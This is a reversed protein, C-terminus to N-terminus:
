ANEMIQETASVVRELAEEDSLGDLEGNKTMQQFVELFVPNPEKRSKMYEAYAPTDM